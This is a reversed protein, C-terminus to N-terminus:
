RIGGIATGTEYAIDYHWMKENMLIPTTNHFPKPINSFMWLDKLPDTFLNNVHITDLGITKYHNLFKMANQYGKTRLLLDLNFTHSEASSVKHVLDLLPSNM